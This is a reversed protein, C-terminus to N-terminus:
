RLYMLTGAPPPPNVHLIGLGVFYTDNWHEAGSAQTGWTGKAQDVGSFQLADVREMTKVEVKGTGTINLTGNDALSQEGELILIGASVTNTGSNDNSGSLVLAGNGTKEFAVVAGSTGDTISGAIENTVAINVADFRFKKHGGGTVLFDTNIIIPYSANANQLVQAPVKWDGDGSFEIRRNNLVWANTATSSWTLTPSYTTSAKPVYYIINGASPSDVLSAITVNMRADGIADLGFVGTFTNTLSLLSVSHTGSGITRVVLGGLGSVPGSFTCSGNGGKLIVSTGAGLIVPRMSVFTKNNVYLEGSNMTISGAPDGLHYDYFVSLQGEDIVTGGTYTNTIPITADGLAMKGSGTKTLVIDGAVPVKMNFWRNNVSHVVSTGSPAALTLTTTGSITLGNNTDLFSLGGITRDSDLTVTRDANLVNAFTATFGAGDAVINGIWKSTDSWNGDVNQNWTGDAAKSSLITALIVAVAGAAVRKAYSFRNMTSNEQSNFRQTEEMCAVAVRRGAWGNKNQKSTTM